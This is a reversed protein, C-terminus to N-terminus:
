ILNELYESYSIQYCNVGFINGLVTKKEFKGHLLADVKTLFHFPPSIHTVTNKIVIKSNLRM